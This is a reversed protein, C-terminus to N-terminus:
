ILGLQPNPTTRDPVPPPGCLLEYLNRRVFLNLQLLRLLQQASHLCRSRFKLYAVMLSVCLAIWIQTMVANRSTGLFAKIKLNQKIWKFFLEIQWREKYLDAITKAALHFANTLFVYHKGTQPDRYGIRRLLPMDIDALQSGTLRITQDCTLGRNRQLARRELVTYRANKRQRTIFFLGQETLSKYWAYDTYGRDCVLVSGRPFRFRHAVPAEHTRADTIVAFAPIYGSHDLGLHLKVGGKTRNYDAWPFVQLSLDIVSADLSYLPHRFRFRHKPAVSQCQRCLDGFLEEYLEAPQEANVRALTSRTLSLAGLHYWRKAQAAANAVVDRLSCRGALQGMALAVFQSWRSTKRFPGGRHHKKALEAFQHRPVLKLLQAFATSHHAM